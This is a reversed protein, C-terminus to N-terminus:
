YKEDLKFKEPHRAQFNKYFTMIEQMDQSFHSPYIIKGLGAKKEKYDLFGLVIPVQAKQAVYYFGTKWNPNPSRTAEPAIMLVLNENKKFLEAMLDTYQAHQNKKLKKRDIGIAGMPGLILNLPFKLWESKIVFRPNRKMFYSVAMAPIFDFNSTHPAGILVFSKVDEPVNNVFTWGSLKFYQSIIKRLM